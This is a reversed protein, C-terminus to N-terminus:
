FRYQIGSVLEYSEWEVGNLRSLGVTGDALYTRDIGSETKWRQIQGSLLVSWRDDVSYEGQFNWVIGTGDAEHEFSVPHDFEPRLNWDAQAFLEVIHYEFGVTLDIKNNFQYSANLGLWPGYWYATYSSDLGPIPGMPHPNDFRSPTLSPESVVQVGDTMSLAQVNFGYGVVPTLVLGKIQEIELRPGWAGSLDIVFGSDASNVSRSWENTRNDDAYDSDRVDGDLIKGISLNALFVSQKRLYPIKDLEIWGNSRLQFTEIDKWALESLINPNNGGRDGSINWELQDSRFGATFEVGAGEVVGESALASSYILTFIVFSLFLRHYNM